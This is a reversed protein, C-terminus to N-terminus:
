NHIGWRKLVQIAQLYQEEPPITSGKLLLENELYHSTIEDFAAQRAKNIDVNGDYHMISIREEYLDLYYEKSSHSNNLALLNKISLKQKTVCTVSNQCNNNINAMNLKSINCFGQPNAIIKDTNKIINDVKNFFHTM